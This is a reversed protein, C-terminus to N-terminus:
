IPDRAAEIAQRVLAESEDRDSAGGWDGYIHEVLTYTPAYSSRWAEWDRESVARVGALAPILMAAYPAGEGEIYSRDLEAIARDLDDLDYATVREIRGDGPSSVVAVVVSAFSDEADAKSQTVMRVLALDAGRLALPTFVLSDLGQEVQIQLHALVDSRGVSLARMVTRHDDYVHDEALAATL